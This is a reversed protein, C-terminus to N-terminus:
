GTMLRPKGSRERRHQPRSPRGAVRLLLKGLGEDAVPLFAPWNERSYQIAKEPCEAGATKEYWTYAAFRAAVKRANM